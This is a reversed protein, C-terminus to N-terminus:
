NCILASILLFSIASSPFILIFSVSTEFSDKSSQKTKQDVAHIKFSEPTLLIIEKM